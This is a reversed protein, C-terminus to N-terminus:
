RKAEAEFSKLVVGLNDYADKVQRLLTKIQDPKRNKFLTATREDSHDVYLEVDRNFREFFNIAKVLEESERNKRVIGCQALRNKVLHNVARASMGSESIMVAFSIQEEPPIDILLLASNLPIRKEEPTEPGLLKLVKKDLTLARRHQYAWVGSKKGFIKAIEFDNKGSESLFGVAEMTELLSLDVDHCNAIVAQIFQEVSGADERVIVKLEPIGAIGCATWRREGSILEYLCGNEDPKELRKVIAPQLQTQEKLNQGFERLKDEDFFKRPQNKMRRIQALPVSLVQGIIRPGTGNNTHVDMEM